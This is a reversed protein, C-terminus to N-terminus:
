TQCSSTDVADASLRCALKELKRKEVKGTSNRPFSEMTHFFRPVKYRALREGCFDILESTPTRTKMGCVYAFPVSGLREDPVAVVQAESVMPHEALVREVEAPYVNFGGVTFMEKLRAIFFLRGSGDQRLLDGTRLWGDHTLTRASERPDRFYGKMVAPGRIWLEGTEGGVREALTEPDVIKVELWSMPRGVSTAHIRPSDSLSTQAVSGVESMGLGSLLAELGLRQTVRGVEEPTIAAGGSLAFRLDSLDYRGLDPHDVLMKFHSPTGTMAVARHRELLGLTREADFAALTLVTARAVAPMLCGYMLGMIHSMPQPVLVADGPRLRWAEAHGRAAQLLGRHTLMAGKPLGTTGSTYQILHVDDPAIRRCIERIRAPDTRRGKDLFPKCSDATLLESALSHELLRRVESIPLGPSLPVVVAGILAVAWYAVIWDRGNPMRLAVRDGPEIGGALLGAALRRATAALEAYTLRGSDCVVAGGAVGDEEIAALVEPVTEEALNEDALNEDALTEEPPVTKSM